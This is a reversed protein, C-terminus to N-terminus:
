MKGAAVSELEAKMYNVAYEIFARVRTPLLRDAPYVVHLPLPQAQWQPLLRVLRGTQLDEEILWDPLLSVGLGSRAAERLSTVGESKLVPEISIVQGSQNRSQLRIESASWFQHGSLALWPWSKLDSPRKASPQKEILSPAAALILTIKGAPRAIVSEDTVTGPLIGVDCDEEIMRLPRNTLALEATVKPHMQLFESLMRTVVSQGWDITAFVRLLGSLTTQDVRLRQSAADAQALIIRADELLGQGAPTLRMRRSDRRLLAMGCGEELTRLHRSLTPQPIKLHRAAASISGREVIHVFARLLSLDDLANM